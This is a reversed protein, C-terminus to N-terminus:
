NRDRSLDKESISQHSQSERRSKNSKILSGRGTVLQVFTMTEQLISGTDAFRILISCPRHSDWHTVGCASASLLALVRSARMRDTYSAHRQESAGMPTDRLYSDQSQASSLDFAGTELRALEAAACIGIAGEVHGIRPALRGDNQRCLSLGCLATIAHAFRVTTHIGYVM